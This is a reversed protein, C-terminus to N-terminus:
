LFTILCVVIRVLTCFKTRVAPSEVGSSGTLGLLLLIIKIIMITSLSSPHGKHSHLMVRPRFILVRIILIAMPSIGPSVITAVTEVTMGVTMGAPSTAMLAMAVLRSPRRPRERICRCDSMARAEDALDSWFELRDQSFDYFCDLESNYRNANQRKFGKWLGIEQQSLTSTM